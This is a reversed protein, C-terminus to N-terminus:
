REQLLITVNKSYGTATLQLPANIGGVTTYSGTFTGQVARGEFTMGSFTLSLQPRQFTGTVTIPVSNAAAAEKMTGSGSVANGSGQQLQFDLTLTPSAGTWPGVVSALTAELENEIDEGTPLCAGAALTVVLLPIIRSFRM